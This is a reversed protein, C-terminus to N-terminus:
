FNSEEPDDCNCYVIKDKFFPRYGHEVLNIEFNIDEFRTYFEDNKNVKAAHLNTNKMKIKEKLNINKQKTTEKAYDINIDRATKESEKKTVCPWMEIYNNSKVVHAINDCNTFTEAFAIRKGDIEKVCVYYFNKM